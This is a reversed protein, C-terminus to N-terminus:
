LWYFNLFVLLILVLLLKLQSVLETPSQKFGQNKKKSKMLITYVGKRNLSIRCGDCHLVIVDLHLLTERSYSHFFADTREFTRRCVETFKDVIKIDTRCCFEKMSISVVYWNAKEGRNNNFHSLRDSM